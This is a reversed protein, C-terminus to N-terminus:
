NPDPPETPARLIGISAFAWGFSLAIWVVVRFWGPPGNEVINVQGSPQFPLTVLPVFYSCFAYTAVGLAVILVAREARGLKRVWAM